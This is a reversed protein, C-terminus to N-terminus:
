AEVFRRRSDNAIALRLRRIAGVEIQRVRERSIGLRRGIERLTQQPEGGLGYRWALIVQDRTELRLLHRRLRVQLEGDIITQAPLPDPHRLRDAIGLDGDTGSGADFGLVHPTGFGHQRAYRPVHIAHPQDVVALLIEKRVWFTAYTMFRTGNAARYGRIAKLLGVCGEAILDEFPVGRGRFEKAVHVVYPLNSAILADTAERDGARARAVQAQEDSLEPRPGRDIRNLVHSVSPSDHM